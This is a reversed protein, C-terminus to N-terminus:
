VSEGVGLWYGGAEAVQEAQEELRALAALFTSADKIGGTNIASALSQFSKAEETYTDGAVEYLEEADAARAFQDGSATRQGDIRGQKMAAKFISPLKRASKRQMIESYHELGM